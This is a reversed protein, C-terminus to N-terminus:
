FRVRCFPSTGEAKFEDKLSKAKQLFNWLEDRSFDAISLFHQM